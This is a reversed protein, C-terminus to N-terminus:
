VIEPRDPLENADSELRPFHEALRAGVERVASIVGESHKDKIIAGQLLSTPHDWYNAAVKEAIKKDAVIVGIKEAVSVFILVGTNGKTPTLQSFVALARDWVVQRRRSQNALLLGLGFYGILFGIIGYLAAQTFNYYVGWNHEVTLFLSIMTAIIALAGGAFLRDLIWNRSKSALRVVIEGSSKSEAEGVAKTIADFDAESFCKDVLNAM